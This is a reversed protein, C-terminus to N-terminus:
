ININWPIKISLLSILRYNKVNTSDGAKIYACNQTNELM